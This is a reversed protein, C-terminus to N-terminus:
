FVEKPKRIDLVKRPWENLENQVEKLRKKSIINFDTGKPFNDRFLRNSNENTPGEWTSYPHAFFVKVKTNKTFLIHQTTM